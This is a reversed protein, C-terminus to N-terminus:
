KSHIKAVHACKEIAHSRQKYNGRLTPHKGEMLPIARQPKDRWCGVFHLRCGHAQPPHASALAVVAVLLVLVVKM